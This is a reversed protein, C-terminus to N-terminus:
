PKGAAQARSDRSNGRGWVGALVSGLLCHWVSSIACPVASLPDLNARALVVGLGSNQMGVEISLTRAQEPGAQVRALGYGLAFGVLHVCGVALVLRLGSSLLTDRSQGLIAGVIVVIVLVALLPAAPLLRRSLGPALVRLGVGLVVPLLVVKVTDFFLAWGDVEVRSGVLWTTLLPTLIVASLTSLATMSVSLAVDARALYAIVNSATGGPCCSVLILGAALWRELGFLWAVTFGALPMVTFQLAVGTLIPRPLRLVRAFDRAELTLGMGFMIVGLGPSVYPMFWTFAPPWVLALGTGLLVWLWFLNTLTQLM